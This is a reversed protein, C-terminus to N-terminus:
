WKYWLNKEFRFDDNVSEELTLDSFIIMKSPQELAQFGTAIGPPINIVRNASAELIFEEFPLNESPNEWDDPKVLILKFTGNVVYFWKQEKKHGQWGRVISTDLQETVYFRKVLSMDFDNFFRLIGRTDTHIKGQILSANM